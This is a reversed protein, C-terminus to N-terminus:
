EGQIALRRDEADIAKGAEIREMTPVFGGVRNPVRKVQQLEVAFIKTRHRAIPAPTSRSQEVLV